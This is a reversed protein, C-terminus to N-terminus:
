RCQTLLHPRDTESADAWGQGTPEFCLWRMRTRVNGLRKNIKSGAAVVVVSAGEEVRRDLMLVNVRRAFM